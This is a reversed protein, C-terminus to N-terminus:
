RSSAAEEELLLGFGEAVLGAFGEPAGAALDGIDDFLGGFGDGACDFADM